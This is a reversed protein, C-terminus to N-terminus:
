DRGLTVSANECGIFPLRREPLSEGHVRQRAREAEEEELTLSVLPYDNLVQEVLVPDEARQANEAVAGSRRGAVGDRRSLGRGRADDGRPRRLSTVGSAMKM